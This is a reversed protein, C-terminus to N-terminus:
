FTNELTLSNKGVRGCRQIGTGNKETIEDPIKIIIMRECLVNQGPNGRGGSQGPRVEEGGIWEEEM